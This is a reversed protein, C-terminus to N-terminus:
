IRMSIAMAITGLSELARVIDVLRDNRQQLCPSATKKRAMLVVVLSRAVPNPALVEKTITSQFRNASLKHGKPSKEKQFSRPKVYM